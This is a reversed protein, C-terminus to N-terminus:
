AEFLKDVVPINDQRSMSDSAFAHQVIRDAECNDRIVMVKSPM